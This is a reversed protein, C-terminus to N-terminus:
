TIRLCLCQDHSPQSEVRALLTPGELLFEIRNLGPKPATLLVSRLTAFDRAGQESRFGGSIKMCLNMMRLYREAQNNSFPVRNDRPFRLM